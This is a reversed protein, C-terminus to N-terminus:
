RIKVQLSRYPDVTTSRCSFLECAFRLPRRARSTAKREEPSINKLANSLHPNQRNLEPLQTTHNVSQLHQLLQSAALHHVVGICQLDMAVYSRAIGCLLVIAWEDQHM